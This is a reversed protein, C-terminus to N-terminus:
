GERRAQEACARVLPAPVARHSMQRRETRRRGIAPFLSALDDDGEGAELTITALKRSNEPDPLRDVRTAVNQAALAVRLRHLAACCSLVLDRRNPDTWPLHRTWDAYLEVAGPRIRWRWPQTNHISPARVAVMIAAALDPKQILAYERTSPTCKATWCRARAG